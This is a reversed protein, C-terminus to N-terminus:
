FGETRLRQAPEVGAARVVKGSDAWGAESLRSRLDALCIWFCVLGTALQGFNQVFANTLLSALAPIAIASILVAALALAPLDAILVAAYIALEFFAYEKLRPSCLYLAFMALAAIRAAHGPHDMLWRDLRRLSAAGSARVARRVSLALPALVLAVVLLGYIAVAVLKHGSLGLQDAVDTAFLFLSPNKEDIALSHQGPIHGTVANLWSPFIDAYFVMSILFPAVFGAAGAALVTLKQGRPLPLFYLGALVPFFVLKFSTVLGLVAAGAVRPALTRPDGGLLLALALATLLGSLIAFNGATVVWEFGAFAGFACLLKLAVNRADGRSKGLAPLLLASLIALGIFIVTQHALLIGGACVPRFADLTVPLYPYFFNTDKLNKVFYPDLGELHAAVAACNVRADWGYPLDVRYNALLSAFVLLAVFMILRTLWANTSAGLGAPAGSWNAVDSGGSM